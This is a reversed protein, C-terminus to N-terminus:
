CNYSINNGQIKGYWVRLSIGLLENIENQLLDNDDYNNPEQSNNWEKTATGWNTLITFTDGSIEGIGYIEVGRGQLYTIVKHFDSNSDAHDNWNGSNKVIVFPYIRPTGYNFTDANTKRANGALATNSYLDPM